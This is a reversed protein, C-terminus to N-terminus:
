HGLFQLNGLARRAAVEIREAHRADGHVGLLTAVAPPARGPAPRGARLPSVADSARARNRTAPGDGIAVGCTFAASRLSTRARGSGRRDPASAAVVATTTSGVPHSPM